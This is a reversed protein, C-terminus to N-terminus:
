PIDRGTDILKVMTNGPAEFGSIVRPQNGSYIISHQDRRPLAIERFFTDRELYELSIWERHLIRFEMGFPVRDLRM